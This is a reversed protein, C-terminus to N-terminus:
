VFNELNLKAQNAKRSLILLNISKKSSRISNRLKRKSRPRFLKLKRLSRRDKKKMVNLKTSHKRNLDRVNWSLMRKVSELKERPRKLKFTLPRALSTNLNMREGGRLSVWLRM